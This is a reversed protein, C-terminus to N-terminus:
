VAYASRGSSPVSTDDREDEGADAELHLMQQFALVMSDEDAQPPCAELLAHFFARSPRRTGRELRYIHNEGYGLRHALRKQSFGQRKRARRLFAGFADLTSHQGAHEM